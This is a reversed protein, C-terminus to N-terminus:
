HRALDGRLIGSALRLGDSMTTFLFGYSKALEMLRHLEDQTCGFETPNPSVDHTFVVLWGKRVAVQEIIGSWDYHGRRHRELGLAPVLSRDSISAGWKHSIGRCTEYRRMLMRRSSLSAHGYPFAFTRPEYHKLIKRLATTNKEVSEQVRGLDKFICSEHYYTHCGIEHRHEAVETLDDGTFFAVNGDRQSRFSESAYFTARAQYEQLLPKSELWASRPFDDFTLSLLPRDPAVRFPALNLSETGKKILKQGLSLQVSEDGRLV